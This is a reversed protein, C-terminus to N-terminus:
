RADGLLDQGMERIGEAQFRPRLRIPAFTDAGAFDAAILRGGPL